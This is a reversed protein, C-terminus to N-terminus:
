SPWFFYDSRNDFSYLKTENLQRAAARALDLAPRGFEACAAHAPRRRHALLGLRARGAGHCPGCAADRCPDGSITVGRGDRTAALWDEMRHVLAEITEGGHGAYAPDGIWAALGDPDTAAVDALSRGRWAGADLDRLAADVPADLGLAAASERAAPAPSTAADDFRPLTARLSRAAALGRPNLGDDSAFAAERTAATEAHAVLVLSRPM